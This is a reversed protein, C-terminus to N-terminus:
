RAEKRYRSGLDAELLGFALDVEDTVCASDAGAPEGAVLREYIRSKVAQVVGMTQAAVVEATFGSPDSSDEAALLAALEERQRDFMRHLGPTLAPTSLILAATM